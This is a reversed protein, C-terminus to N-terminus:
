LEASLRKSPRFRVRPQASPAAPQGNRPNRKAGLTPPAVFFVGFGRLEIRGHNALHDAMVTFFAEVMARCTEPPLDSNADVIAAILEARVMRGEKRGASPSARESGVSYRRFHVIATVRRAFRRPQVNM